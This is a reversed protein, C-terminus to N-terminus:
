KELCYNYIDKVLKSSVKKTNNNKIFDNINGPNTKLDTYIRYTTIRKEEMMKLINIRILSKVQNDYEYYNTRQVYTEHIKQFSYYQNFQNDLYNNKTLEGLLPYKNKNMKKLLLEMKNEFLSYLILPDIIRVNHKSLKILKSVSLTQQGSVDVLYQKLFTEFTLKRM